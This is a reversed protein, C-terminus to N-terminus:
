GGMARLGAIFYRNHMPDGKRRPMVDDGVLTCLRESILLSVARSIDERRMGTYEEITTYSIISVNTRSTRQALLLMYLKLAHLTAPRRMHDLFFKLGHMHDYGALLYGQPFACWKGPTEIGNLTYVVVKGQAQRGIAGVKELLQLAKSLTARAMPAVNLIQTYSAVVVNSSRIGAEIQAKNSIIALAFLALIAAPGAGKHESWKLASLAGCVTANKHEDYSVKVGSFALGPIEETTVSRNERVWASPLMAFATASM